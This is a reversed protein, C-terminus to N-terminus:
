KIESTKPFIKTDTLLSKGAVKDVKNNQLTKGMEATLAKTAGGTTLDNVLIKSLSNQVAELADVLNQLTNLNVYDFALLANINDVLDKLVKGQRADLSKVQLLTTLTM